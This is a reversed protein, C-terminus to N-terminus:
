MQANGIGLRKNWWCAGNKRNQVTEKLDELLQGTTEKISHLWHMRQKEQIRYGAVQGLMIDRELSWFLAAKIPPNYSRTIKPTESGGFCIPENKERDVTITFNKEV